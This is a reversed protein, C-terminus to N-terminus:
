QIGTWIKKNLHILLEGYIVQKSSIQWLSLKLMQSHWTTPPVWFLMRVRVVVKQSCSFPRKNWGIAYQYRYQLTFTAHDCSSSSLPSSTSRGQNRERQLKSLLLMKREPTKDDEEKIEKITFERFIDPCFPGIPHCPLAVGWWHGQMRKDHM